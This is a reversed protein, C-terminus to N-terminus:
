DKSNKTNRLKFSYLLLLSLKVIKCTNKEEIKWMEFM